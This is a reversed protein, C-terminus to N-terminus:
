GRLFPPPGSHPRRRVTYARKMLIFNWALRVPLFAEICDRGVRRVTNFVAARADVATSAAGYTRPAYAAPFSVSPQQSWQTGPALLASSLIQLSHPSFFLTSIWM